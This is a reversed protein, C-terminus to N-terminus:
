HIKYKELRVLLRKEEWRCLELLKRFLDIIKNMAFLPGKKVYSLMSELLGFFEKCCEDVDITIQVGAFKLFEEVMMEGYVLNLLAVSRTSPLYRIFSEELLCDISLVHGFTGDFDINKSILDSNTLRLSEYFVGLFDRPTIINMNYANRKLIDIQLSFIDSQQIIVSPDATALSIFDILDIIISDEIKSALHLSAIALKVFEAPVQQLSILRISDIGSFIREETSQLTRRIGKIVDPMVNQENNLEADSYLVSNMIHIAYHMVRSSNNFIDLM